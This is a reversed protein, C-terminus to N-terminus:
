PKWGLAVFAGILVCSMVAYFAMAAVFGQLRAHDLESRTYLTAPPVEHSCAARTPLRYVRATM